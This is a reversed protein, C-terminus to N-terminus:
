NLPAVEKPVFPFNRQYLPSSFPLSRSRSEKPKFKSTKLSPYNYSERGSLVPVLLSNPKSVPAATLRETAFRM